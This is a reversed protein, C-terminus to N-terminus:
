TYSINFSPLGNEKSLITLVREQEGVVTITNMQM